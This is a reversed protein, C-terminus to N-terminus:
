VKVGKNTEVMKIKFQILLKLFDLKRNDDSQYAKLMKKEDLLDSLQEDVYQKRTKETNGGYIKKFDVGNEIANALEVKFEEKYIEDIETLRQNTKSMWHLIEDYEILDNHTEYQDDYPILKCEETSQEESADLIEESKEVEWEAYKSNLYETLKEAEEENYCLISFDSETDTVNKRASECIKWTM